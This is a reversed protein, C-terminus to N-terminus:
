LHLHLQLPYYQLRLRHRHRHRHNHPHLHPTLPASDSLALHARAIDATWSEIRTPNTNLYRYNRAENEYRITSDMALEKPVDSLKAYKKRWISM